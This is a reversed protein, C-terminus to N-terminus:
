RICKVKAMKKYKLRFSVNVVWKVKMIHCKLTFYKVVVAAAAAVVFVKSSIKNM